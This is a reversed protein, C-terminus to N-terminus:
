SAQLIHKLRIINQQKHEEFLKRASDTFWDHFNVIFNFNTNEWEKDDSASSFLPSEPFRMSEHRLDETWQFFDDRAVYSLDADRLVKAIKTKPESRIDTMEIADSILFIQEDTYPLESRYMYDRAFRSGVPENNQYRELYGTDHFLAAIAAIYKETISLDAAAAIRLTNPLVVNTTHEKRHYILKSSLCDLLHEAKIRAETFHNITLLSDKGTLM